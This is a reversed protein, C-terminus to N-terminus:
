IIDKRILDLGKTLLEEVESKSIFKCNDGLKEPTVIYENHYYPVNNLALIKGQYYNIEGDRFFITDTIKFLFERDEADKYLVYPNQFSPNQEKAIKLIEEELKHIKVMSEYQLKAIEENIEQIKDKM